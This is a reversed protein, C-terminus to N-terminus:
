MQLYLEKKSSNYTVVRELLSTFKKGRDGGSGKLFNSIEDFDVVNGLPIETIEPLYDIEVANKEEESLCDRFVPSEYLEIPYFEWANNSILVHCFYNGYRESYDKGVYKIQSICYKGSELRFYSFSIPFLRDIEEKTPQTPLNSPPIYICHSEIEMREKDTIGKSMSYTQFGMGSSLGKKCSTYFLQQVAM